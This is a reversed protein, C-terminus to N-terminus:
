RMRRLSDQRQLERENQIFERNKYNFFEEEYRPNDPNEMWRSMLRVHEPDHRYQIGIFTSVPISLFVFCIFSMVSTRILMKKYYGVLEEPSNKSFYYHILISIIALGAGGAFIMESCFPWYMLKFLIGVLAAFLFIGSLVTVLNNQKKVNGDAFLVYGMMLCLVALTSFILVLLVGAFPINYLKLSACGILM